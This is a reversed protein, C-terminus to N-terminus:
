EIAKSALIPERMKLDSPRRLQIWTIAGVLGIGLFDTVLEPIIMLLAGVILFLREWSKVRRM